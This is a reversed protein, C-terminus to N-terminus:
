KNKIFTSKNLFSGWSKCSGVLQPASLLHKKTKFTIVICHRHDTSNDHHEQAHTFHNSIERLMRIRVKNNAGSVPRIDEMGVDVNRERVHRAVHDAKVISVREFISDIVVVALEVLVSEAALALVEADFGPVLLRHAAVLDDGACDLLELSSLAASHFAINLHVANGAEEVNGRLVERVNQVGRLLFAVVDVHREFDVVERESLLLVEVADLRVVRVGVHVM